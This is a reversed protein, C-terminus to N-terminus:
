SDKEKAHQSLIQKMKRLSNRCKDLDKEDIATEMEEVLHLVKRQDGVTLLSATDDLEGHHEEVDAM